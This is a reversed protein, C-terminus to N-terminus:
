GCAPLLAICCHLTLCPRPSLGQSCYLTSCRVLATCTSDQDACQGHALCAWPCPLCSSHCEDPCYQACTALCATACLLEASVTLTHVGGQLHIALLLRHGPRRQSGCNPCGPLAAEGPLGLKHAALLPLGHSDSVRADTNGLDRVFSSVMCQWANVHECALCSALM